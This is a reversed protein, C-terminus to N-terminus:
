RLQQKDSDARALCRRQFLFSLECSPFIEGEEEGTRWYLIIQDMEEHFYM